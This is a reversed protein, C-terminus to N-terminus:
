AWFSAAMFLIIKQNNPNSAMNPGMKRPEQYLAAPARAASFSYYCRNIGPQAEILLFPKTPACRRTRGRTPPCRPGGRRSFFIIVKIFAVQFLHSMGGTIKFGCSRRSCFARTGSIKLEKRENKGM